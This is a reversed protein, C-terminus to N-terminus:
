RWTCYDNESIAKETRDLELQTIEMEVRRYTKFVDAIHENSVEKNTENAKIYTMYDYLFSATRELEEITLM